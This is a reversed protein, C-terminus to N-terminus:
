AHHINVVTDIWKAKHISRVSNSDGGQHTPIDFYVCLAYHLSYKKRFRVDMLVAPDRDKDVTLYEIWEEEEPLIFGQVQCSHIAEKFRERLPPSLLACARLYLEYGHDKIAEDICARNIYFNEPDAVDLSLKALAKELIVMCTRPIGNSAYVLQELVDPKSEDVEMIDALNANILKELMNSLFERTQLYEQPNRVDRSLPVLSFPVNQLPQDSKHFPIISYITKQNTCKTLSNFISDFPGNYFTEPSFMSMDDIIVVPKTLGLQGFASDLMPFGSCDILNSFKVGLEEIKTRIPGGSISSRIEDCSLVLEGQSDFFSKTYQHLPSGTSAIIELPKKIYIEIWNPKLSLDMIQVVSNRIASLYETFWQRSPESGSFDNNALKVLIPFGEIPQQLACQMFFIALMQYYMSKLFMTKGSGRIGSVVYNGLYPNINIPRVQYYSFLEDDNFSETTKYFNLTSIVHNINM